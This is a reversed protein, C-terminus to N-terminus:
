NEKKIKLMREKIENIQEKLKEKEKESMHQPGYYRRTLEGYAAQLIEYETISKFEKM